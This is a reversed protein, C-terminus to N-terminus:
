KKMGPLDVSLEFGKSTKHFDLNMDFSVRAGECPNVVLSISSGPFASSPFAGAAPFRSGIGLPAMIDLEMSDFVDDM